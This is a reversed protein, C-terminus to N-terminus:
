TKFVHKSMTRDKGPIKKVKGPSKGMKELAFDM